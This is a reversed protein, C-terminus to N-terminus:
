KEEQKNLKQKEFATEMQDYYEETVDKIGNIVADYNDDYNKLHKKFKAIMDEKARKYNLVINKRTYTKTFDQVAIKKAENMNKYINKEDITVFDALGYPRIIYKIIVEKQTTHLILEDIKGKIVKTGHVFFVIENLNYKNTKM